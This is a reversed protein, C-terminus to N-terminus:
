KNINGKSCVEKIGENIELKLNDIGIQHLHTTGREIESLVKLDEDVLIYKTKTGGGDVGLYYM